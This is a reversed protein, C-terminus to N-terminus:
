GSSRRQGLAGLAGEGFDGDRGFLFSGSARWGDAEGDRRFGLQNGSMAMGDETPQAEADPRGDPQIDFGGMGAVHQGARADRETVLPRQIVQVGPPASLEAAFAPQAGAVSQGPHRDLPRAHQALFVPNSGDREALLGVEYQKARVCQVQLGDM